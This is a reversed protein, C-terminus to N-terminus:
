QSQRKAPPGAWGEEESRLHVTCARVKASSRIDRKMVGGSGEVTPGSLGAEDSGSGGGGRGGDGARVAGEAGEAREM